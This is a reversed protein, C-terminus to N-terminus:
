EPVVHLLLARSGPITGLFAVASGGGPTVAVKACCFSYAKDSILEGELPEKPEGSAPDVRAQLIQPLVSLADTTWALQIGGTGGAMGWEPWLHRSRPILTRDSWAAKGYRDVLRHWVVADESWGIIVHDGAAAIRVNSAHAGGLPAPPPTAPEMPNFRLYTAQFSANHWVVHYVNDSDMAASPSYQVSLDPAAAVPDGAAVGDSDFRALMVVRATVGNVPKFDEYAAGFGTPTSFFSTGYSKVVASYWKVLIWGAAGRSLLYGHLDHDESVTYLLALGAEGNGVLAFREVSGSSFPLQQEAGREGTKAYDALHLQQDSEGREVWAVVYGGGVAAVAHASVLAGRSSVTVPGAGGDPAARGAEYPFIQHCASLALLPAIGGLTITHWRSAM